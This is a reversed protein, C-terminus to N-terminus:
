PRTSRYEPFNSFSQGEVEYYPMFELYDCGDLTFHLSKGAIPKLRSVVEHVDCPVVLESGEKICVAAMLLPGYELAYHGEEFGKEMGVYKTTRFTAPLVFEVKDGDKWTRCVDIYTGPKGYYASKGNVKVKMKGSAWGPVRIKLSFRTPQSCGITASVAKDYPFDTHMNLTFPHGDVEHNLTSSAFLNILVGDPALSYIYEPLSGYIRTGQGECCTNTAIEDGEAYGMKHGHMKAFYAIGKDAVQNPIVVNYLSKEIEANYKEEYPWINHFRQNLKIWFANGCLEGTRATLFLSKPPYPFYGENIALSGGIHEWNDHFLDWFGKVAELYKEDGTARYLDMYPEIATVLYNHPRDYPYKWIADTNREALWEMWYNQQFYRQMVMIEQPKGVPSFYTRTLPIAGQVGQGPRFLMEPLYPSQEFWDYFGRLLPFAKPNGAYGAEILGHSVWSRVYAGNEFDFIARKPYAMLYGDPEKCLDIVDIISDLRAKLPANDMWRLTGGAGMLFRGASSGPLQATWFYSHRGSRPPLPMGAKLRFDYVLEDLSFSNMLYAINNEMVKRFLGEGLRVGTVPTEVVNAVPKWKEQPIVNQPNDTVVFEGMPREPRTLAQVNHEPAPHSESARCGIAIDKGENLIMIKQLALRADRLQTATLRVYRATAQKSVSLVQGSFEHFEDLTVNRDYYMACTAFTSDDSVEIRFRTPFGCSLFSGELNDPLLKITDFTRSRGLDIQVWRTQGNDAAPSVYHAFYVRAAREVGMRAAALEAQNDFVFQAKSGETGFMCALTCLAIVKNRMYKILKEKSLYLFNRM